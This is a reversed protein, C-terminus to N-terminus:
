NWPAISTGGRVREPMSRLAELTDVTEGLLPSDHRNASAALIGLPVDDADLLM